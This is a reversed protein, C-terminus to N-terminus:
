DPFRLRKTMGVAVAWRIPGSLPLVSQPSAVTATPDRQLAPNPSPGIVLIDGTRPDGQEM